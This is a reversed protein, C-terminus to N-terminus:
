NKLNNRKIKLKMKKKELQNVTSITWIFYLLLLFGVFVGLKLLTSKIEFVSKYVVKEQAVILLEWKFTNIPTYYMFSNEGNKESVYKTVGTKGKKIEDTLDVDEYGKLPKRQKMKYINGLNKHWKDLIFSGDRYDVLTCIAQGNYAKAQFISPMSECNIIGVMIALTEKQKIVPVAYYIIEKETVKDTTRLSMHEGQISLKDFSMDSQVKKITGDQHLVTNNPYIIDIRNFITMPQFANIHKSIAEYSDVRNEQVMANSALKLISINDQFRSEIEKKITSANNEITNWCIDEELKLISNYAFISMVVTAVIILIPAFLKTLFIKIQWM